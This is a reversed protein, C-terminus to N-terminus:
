TKRWRQLRLNAELGKYTNKRIIQEVDREGNLIMENIDKGKVNSPWICINHGQKIMKEM